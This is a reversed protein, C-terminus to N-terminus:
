GTWSSGCGTAGSPSRPASRTARACSSGRSRSRPGPSSRSRAPITALDRVAGELLSPQAVAAGVGMNVVIKELRPVQMINRLGLQDKLQARLETDYRAKLRPVVREQTANSM